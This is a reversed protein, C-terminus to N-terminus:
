SVSKKGEILCRGQKLFKTPSLFEIRDCNLMESVSKHQIIAHLNCFGMCTLKVTSLEELCKIKFSNQFGPKEIAWKKLVKAKLLKFIRPKGFCASVASFKGSDLNAEIMPDAV